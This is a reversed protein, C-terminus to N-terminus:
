IQEDSGAWAAALSCCWLGESASLWKQIRADEAGDVNSSAGVEQTLM